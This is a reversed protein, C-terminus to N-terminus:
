RLRVQIDTGWQVPTGNSKQAQTCLNKLWREREKDDMHTSMWYEMGQEIRTFKRSGKPDNKPFFRNGNSRIADEYFKQRGRPDNSALHKVIARQLDANTNERRWSEGRIRWAPPEIDGSSLDNEQSSVTRKIQKSALRPKDEEDLQQRATNLVRNTESDIYSELVYKFHERSEEIRAQTIREINLEDKKEGM